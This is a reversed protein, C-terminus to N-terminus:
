EKNVKFSFLSGIYRIVRKDKEIKDNEDHVYVKVIKEGEVPRFLFQHHEDPKNGESIKSRAPSLHNSDSVKSGGLSRDVWTCDYLGALEDKLPTLFTM